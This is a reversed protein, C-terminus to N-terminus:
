FRQRMGPEAGGTWAIPGTRDDDALTTGGGIHIRLGAFVTSAYGTRSINTWDYGAYVSVPVSEFPLYELYSDVDFLDDGGAFATIGASAHFALDPYDYFILGGDGGYSGTRTGGTTASGKMQLTLNRLVYYEGFFGYTEFNVGAPLNLAVDTDARVYGATVGFTGKNDRWFLDSDASWAGGGNKVGSLRVDRGEVQLVLGPNEFTVLAAGDLSYQDAHGSRPMRAYDYEGGVLGSFRDLSPFDACAPAIPFLGLVIGALVWSGRNM